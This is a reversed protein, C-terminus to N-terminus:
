TRAVARATPRDALIGCVLSRKSYEGFSAVGVVDERGLVRRAIERESVGQAALREVEGITEEMWDVKARLAAAPREMVGRHADLLLRPELAAVSRLSALLARPSEHSHAIRVKVGLYLDGGAVIGREPDWVVQHDATHGPTHLLRLPAPDFPLLPTSLRPTRGWVLRRYSRIAPRARLQRECDPHLLAPIGRSALVPLNGAHDEHWHTVVVGRLPLAEIAGLLDRRARPFGTDVLVGRLVYASV